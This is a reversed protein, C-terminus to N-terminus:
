CKVACVISKTYWLLLNLTGSIYLKATLYLIQDSFQTKLQMFTKFSKENCKQGSHPQPLASTRNGKISFSPLWVASMTDIMAHNITEHMSELTTM